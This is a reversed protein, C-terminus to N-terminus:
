EVFLIGTEHSRREGLRPQQKLNVKSVNVAVRVTLVSPSWRGFLMVYM